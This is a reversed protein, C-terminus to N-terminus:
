KKPYPFDRSSIMERIIKEDPQNVTYDDPYYALHLAGAAALTRLWDNVTSTKIWEKKEWDYSQVKFVTKELAGPTKSAKKVLERLWREPFTVEEMRPYSMIVTYDYLKLCKEYNQAFWEESEPQTVVPAYITRAFFAKPRSKRVSDMLKLTLDNLKDTKLDTWKDKQPSSLSKFPVDRGGTIKRYEIFADPHFDEFDNLYGDDQFIVGDIDSSVGLDYYLAALKEVAETSFPSLRNSYWSSSLANKGNKIERIRLDTNKSADPLVICLMPMWAFVQIERIILSRAVRSFLDARMPLVTNPFYVSAINGSGEPDAYAQLFVTTPKLSVVREIFNDINRRMEDPNEDYILDLDAQVARMRFVDKFNRRFMRAFQGIPPNDALMYRPVAKINESNGWGDDLTFMLKFGVHEAAEMSDKNYKGYPWVVAFPTVGTKERIKDYSLKLDASIRKRYADKSEYSKSDPFYIRSVEAASTSGEPNLQVARHQNYTHSAISVLGSRALETIQPWSM